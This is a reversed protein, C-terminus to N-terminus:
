KVFFSANIEGYIKLKGKEFPTSSDNVATANKALTMSYYRRSNENSNISTDVTKIGMVTSNSAKAVANARTYARQMLKSLLENAQEDYNSASLRMNDIRNAGQEISADIIKNVLTLNSTKLTIKNVVKYTDFYRKGENTVYIPTISYSGTKLYDGDDLITSLAKYINQAKTKNDTTAKNIDKDSTEIAIDMEAINPEIEVYDSQQVNIYGLEKAQAVSFMCLTIVCLSILLKKM